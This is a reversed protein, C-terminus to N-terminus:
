RRTGAGIFLPYNKTTRSVLLILRKVCWLDNWGLLIETAGFVTSYHTGYSDILTGGM